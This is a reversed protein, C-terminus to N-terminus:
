KYIQKLAAIIANTDVKLYIEQLWAARPNYERKQKLYREFNAIVSANDRPYSGYYAPRGGKEVHRPDYNDQFWKLDKELQKRVKEDEPLVFKVVEWAAEDTVFQRSAGHAAETMMSQYKRESILLAEDRAISDIQSKIKRKAKDWNTSTGSMIPIQDLSSKIAPYSIASSCIDKVAKSYYAVQQDKRFGTEIIDKIEQFVHDYGPLDEEDSLSKNDAPVSNNNFEQEPNVVEDLTNSDEPAADEESDTDMGSWLEGQVGSAIQDDKKQEEKKPEEEKEGFGVFSLAKQFFNKEKMPTPEEQEKERSETACFLADHIQNVFATADKSNLSQILLNYYSQPINSYGYFLGWLGFAIRADPIENSVILSAMKDLDADPSRMFVALAQLAQSNTAMMDFSAAHELNDLLDNIYKREEQNGDNTEPFFERGADIIYDVRNERIGSSKYSYGSYLNYMIETKRQSERELSPDFCEIYNRDLGLKFLDPVCVGTSYRQTISSIYRSIDALTSETLTEDKSSLAQQVLGVISTLRGGNLRNFLPSYVGIKELFLVIEENSAGRLMSSANVSSLYRLVKERAEQKKPDIFSSIDEAENALRYIANVTDDARGEKTGLSYIGNKIDKSLRLLRASEPTIAMGAGIMYSVIFGKAKNIGIDKLIFKSDPVPVDNIKKFSDQGIKTSPISRDYVKIAGLKVYLLYKSELISEAKALTARRDAESFFYIKSTSPSIYITRETRYVTHDSNKKVAEFYPPYDLTDIEIVMPRHDVESRNISFFPFADTLLISNPLIFSAKDYFLTIGFGRQQYFAAPSVSDTSVIADFNLSTTAIYLKM